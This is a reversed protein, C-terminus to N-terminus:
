RNIQKPFSGNVRETSKYTACECALSERATLTYSRRGFSAFQDNLSDLNLRMSCSTSM